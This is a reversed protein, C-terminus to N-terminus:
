KNLEKEKKEDIFDASEEEFEIEGKILKLIYQVNEFMYEFTLTEDFSNTIFIQEKVPNNIPVFYDSIQYFKKKIDGLLELAPLIEDHPSNTEIVTSITVFYFNNATIKFKPSLCSIYINNKRNLDIHPIIICSSDEDIKPIKHDLICFCRIIQKTSKIKNPFYEASTILQKCKIIKNNIELGVIRKETDRKISGIKKKLLIIGQKSEIDRVLSTTLENLGYIPFLFPSEEYKEESRRFTSIRNITNIAPEQNYNSNTSLALGFGIMNRSVKAMNHTKVITEFPTENLEYRKSSNNENNKIQDLFDFFKKVRRKELIGLGKMKLLNKLLSTVRLMKKETFISINEVMKYELYKLVDMNSIQQILEGDAMFFKTILNLYWQSNNGFDVSSNTISEDFHDFFGEIQFSRTESGYDGKSDVLLVKKGEGALISCILVTPLSTGIAVVDYEEDLFQINTQKKKEKKKKVLKGFRTKAFDWYLIGVRCITHFTWNPESQNTESRM